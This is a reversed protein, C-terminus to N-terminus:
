TSPRTYAAARVVDEDELGAGLAGGVTALSATLWSIKAYDLANVPHGAVGALVQEDILLLAGVWSLIFLGLYFVVVGIAVTATTALNFLIVQERQARRRPREWLDAGLILTASVAGIAMVALLVLRVPGYAMALVWLDSAVLTLMGTAAAVVMARSLRAVFAWPQNARIMGLLLRVNGSLVRATFQVVNDDPREDLDTSLQHARRALDRQANPDEADYGLLQGVVHVTTEQVKQRVHVPGLTPVSVLGVGHVPSLQALVPRRGTKLPIETLVVALDWNEELVRNRAAELLDLTETPPDVLRDEAMKLQWRVGPYRQVLIKRVSTTVEPGLVASLSPSVVLGILLEADSLPEAPDATSRCREATVAGHYAVFPSSVPSVRCTRCDTRSLDPAPVDGVQAGRPTTDRELRVRDDIDEGALEDAAADLFAFDVVEGDLHELVRETPMPYGVGDVSVGARRHAGSRELVEETLEADRLCVVPGPHAVVVREGFRLEPCHLVPRVVGAGERGDFLRAGVDLPVDGPVVLVVLVGPDRQEARVLDVVAGPMVGPRPPVRDLLRVVGLVWLSEPARRVRGRWGVDDSDVEGFVGLIRCGFEFSELCSSM